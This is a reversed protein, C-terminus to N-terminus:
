TLIYKAIDSENMELANKQNQNDVKGVLEEITCDISLLLLTHLVGIYYNIKIM